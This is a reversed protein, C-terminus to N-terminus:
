LDKKTSKQKDREETVIVYDRFGDEKLEELVMEEVFEDWSDKPDRYIIVLPFKKHRLIVSKQKGVKM